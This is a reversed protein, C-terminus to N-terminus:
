PPPGSVNVGDQGKRPNNATVSTLQSRRQGKPYEDSGTGRWPSAGLTDPVKKPPHSLIPPIPWRENQLSSWQPWSVPKVDSVLQNLILTFIINHGFQRQWNRTSVRMDEMLSPAKYCWPVTLEVLVDDDPAERLCPRRQIKEPPPAQTFAFTQILRETTEASNIWRVEQHLTQLIEPTTHIIICSLTKSLQIMLSM